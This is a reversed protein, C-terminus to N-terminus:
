VRTKGMRAPVPVLALGYAVPRLTGSQQLGMRYLVGAVGLLAAFAYPIAFTFQLM